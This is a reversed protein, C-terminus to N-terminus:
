SGCSQNPEGVHGRDHDRSLLRSVFSFWPKFPVAAICLQATETLQFIKGMQQTNPLLFLMGSEHDLKLSTSVPTAFIKLLLTPEASILTKYLHKTM